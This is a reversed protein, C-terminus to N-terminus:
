VAVRGKPCGRNKGPIKAWGPVPFAAPVTIHADNKESAPYGKSLLASKLYKPAYSYYYSIGM